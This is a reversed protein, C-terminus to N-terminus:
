NNEFLFILLFHGKILHLCQHMCCNLFPKCIAEMKLKYPFHCHLKYIRKVAHFPLWCYSFFLMECSWAYHKGRKSNIILWFSNICPFDNGRNKRTTRKTLMKDFCLSSLFGCATGLILLSKREWKLEKSVYICWMVCSWVQKYSVLVKIWKILTM